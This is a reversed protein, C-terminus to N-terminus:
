IDAIRRPSFRPGYRPIKIGAAELLRVVRARQGEYPALLELMRSDDARPEGALAWSVLDPLHADGVSVADTDGFAARTSEASTWPGIGSIAQLRRRADAPSLALWSEIRTGHSGVRRLLEARRREVGVPHLEFYPISALREASPPLMLPAPGPAPSGFRLVLRRYAAKAEIGTVKQELVAPILVPVLQGTRPMRLGPMRRMLEHVIRHHAVLPSPDDLLGALGPAADIAPEAGPGWAEAFIEGGRAALHLTAAGRETARALWVGDPGIRITPDNGHRLPGM